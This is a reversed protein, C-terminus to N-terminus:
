QESDFLRRMASAPSWSRMPRWYLPRIRRANVKTRAVWLMKQECAATMRKEAAAIESVGDSSSHGDLNADVAEAADTAVDHAGREVVLVNLEDGNVVDGVRLSERVKQLVVRDEAIQRVVDGMGIVSDCHFSLAELNEFGLIGALNIPSRDARIDNNFRGAEEGLANVGLLMEARRHFLYDDGRGGIAGIRREDEAHVVLSVIGRRVVDNGVSGAGGVAEGGDGLNELFGEPDVAAGHGRNM